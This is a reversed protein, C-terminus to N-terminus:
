NGQTCSTHENTAMALSYACGGTTQLLVQRTSNVSRLALQPHQQRWTRCPVRSRGVLFSGLAPQQHRPTGTGSCRLDVHLHNSQLSHSAHRCSAPGCSSQTLTVAGKNLIPHLSARSCRNLLNPCSLECKGRSSCCSGALGAMAAPYPRQLVSYCWSHNCLLSEAMSVASAFIELGNGPIIEPGLPLSAGAHTAAAIAALEHLQLLSVTLWLM